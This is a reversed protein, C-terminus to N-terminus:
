GEHSPSASSDKHDRAAALLAERQEAIYRCAAELMVRGYGACFRPGAEAPDHGAPGRAEFDEIAALHRQMETVRRDLVSALTEPPQLHAFYLMVLFQSRVKHTPEASRLAQVFRERGAPTLAYVKRDPRGEQPMERCTVLGERSLEALAPYISGFGAVFFHSFTCEFYKKIDYGSAEGQTLVGLCLTKVDLKM